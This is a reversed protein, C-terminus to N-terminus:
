VPAAKKAEKRRRYWARQYARHHKLRAQKEAEIEEPTKVPMAALKTFDTYWRVIEIFKKARTGDDSFQELGSKLEVNNRDINEQEDGYERCRIEFRKQSLAGSV